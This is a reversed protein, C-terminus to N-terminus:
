EGDKSMVRGYLHLRGESERLEVKQEKVLELVALFNGITDERKDTAQLLADFDVRQKNILQKLILQVYEEIPRDDLLIQHSATASIERLLRAQVRFLDMTTIEDLYLDEREAEPVLGRPRGHRRLAEAQVASLKQGLERYRRYELLQKVLSQRPDKKIESQEAAHLVMESKVKLLQAALVLYEGAFGLDVREMRKLEEIYQDAIDAVPLDYIDVEARRVLYLLLDLPGTYVNTSIRLESVSSDYRRFARTCDGLVNSM